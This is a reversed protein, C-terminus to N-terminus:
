QMYLKGVDLTRKWSVRCSCHIPTENYLVIIIASIVTVIIVVNRCWVAIKDYICSLHWVIHSQLSLLVSIYCVFHLIGDVPIYRRTARTPVSMESSCIAEMMLTFLILSSPLINATVGLVTQTAVCIHVDCSLRQVPLPLDAHDHRNCNCSCCSLSLCYIRKRRMVRKVTRKWSFWTAEHRICIKNFQTSDYPPWGLSWKLFQGLTWRRCVDDKVYLPRKIVRM